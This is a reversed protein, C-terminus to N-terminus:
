KKSDGRKGFMINEYVSQVDQIDPLPNLKMHEIEEVERRTLIGDKIKQAIRKEIEQMIRKQDEKDLDKIELFDAM